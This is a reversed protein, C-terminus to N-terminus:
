QLFSKQKLTEILNIFKLSILQFGDYNPHIEDYWQDIEGAIFQVTNRLDIYRVTEPFEDATTSLRNNFEDMIYRIITSRDSSESIGKEIMYRGLWGKKVYDLHVPYDYGHIITKMMPFEDKLLKFITMYINTIRNLELDFKEKLFDRGNTSGRVGSEYPKDILFNRFQSGLIDNGGGSILFFAPKVDRLVDLFYEGQKKAGSLFNSLTDGAAAVCRVAYVKSLHDITDYVLPHQFWSDGESVVKTREPYRRVIEKYYKNRKRRAWWNATDLIMGKEEILVKEDNDNTVTIEPSLKLDVSFPQEKGAEGTEEIFFLGEAFSATSDDNLMENLRAASIENFSPNVNVIDITAVFWSKLPKRLRGIGGRRTEEENGKRVEQDPLPPEPLMELKLPYIDFPKDSVIIKFRETYQKYNFYLAQEYFEVSLLPEGHVNLEVSDGAELHYPSPELLFTDSVFNIDLYLVAIYLEHPAKNTLKIKLTTTPQEKEHQWKEIRISPQEKAQLRLTKFVDEGVSYEVKLYDDINQNVSHKSELEYVFKWTALHKLQGIITEFNPASAVESIPRFKDGKHTLYFSGNLHQLTFDATTEDSIIEVEFTSLTLVADMLEKSDKPIADDLSLFLKLSKKALFDVDALYTNQTDAGPSLKLITRNIELKEITGKVIIKANEGDFLNITMGETLGNIEGRNLVWGISPNYYCAAKGIQSLGEMNLFGTNKLFDSNVPTYILPNQEFANKMYISLRDFLSQNSLRGGTLNLIYSLFTTFIGGGNIEFAPKNSESASFLIHNGEPLLANLGERVIDTPSFSEAFIFNTWDRKSFTYTGKTRKEVPTSSYNIKAIEGRTIDGSHCCDIIITVHAKKEAVANILYRLEKDALLCDGKNKQNFYCVLSELKKDTENTFCKDAYEQTGHGSFYFLVSDEAQAQGLHKLFLRCINEKTAKSNYLEELFLDHSPYNDVLFSKIKHADNVCGELKPFTVSDNDLFIKKQYETIGVLLVYIKNQM